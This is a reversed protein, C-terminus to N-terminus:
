SQGLTTEMQGRRIGELTFKTPAILAQLCNCLKCLVRCKKLDRLSKKIYSSQFTGFCVDNDLSPTHSFTVPLKAKLDNSYPSIVLNFSQLYDGMEALFFLRSFYIRIHSVYPVRLTFPAGFIQRTVVVVVFGNLLLVIPM